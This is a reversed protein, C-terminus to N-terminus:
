GLRDPCYGLLAASMIIGITNLSYKPYREQMAELVSVYQPGATPSECATKALNAATKKDISIGYSSNLMDVFDADIDAAAPVALLVAAAPALIGVAVTRRAAAVYLNKKM